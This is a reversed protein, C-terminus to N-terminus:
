KLNWSQIYATLDEAVVVLEEKRVSIREAVDPNKQNRQLEKLNVVLIDDDNDFEAANETVIFVDELEM